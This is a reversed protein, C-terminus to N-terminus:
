KFLNLIKTFFSEGSSSQAQGKPSYKERLQYNEETIYRFTDILIESSRKWPKESANCLANVCAKAIGKPVTTSAFLSYFANQIDMSAYEYNNNRTADKIREGLGEWNRRINDVNTCYKEPVFMQVKYMDELLKEKEIDKLETLFKQANILRQEFDKNGNGIDEIADEFRTKTYGQPALFFDIKKITSSLTFYKGTKNRDTDYEECRKLSDDITEQLKNWAQELEEESYNEVIPEDVSSANFKESFEDDYKDAYRCIDWIVDYLKWPSALEYDFNYYFIVEDNKITANALELQNFNVECLARMLPIKHTDENIKLVSAKLEIQTDTLEFNIVASGHPATFKEPKEGKLVELNLYNIFEYFSDKYKKEKFLEVAKDWNEYSLTGSLNEWLPAYYKPSTDM